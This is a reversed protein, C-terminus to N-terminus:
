RRFNVLNDQRCIILADLNNEEMFFKIRKNKEQRDESTLKTDNVKM